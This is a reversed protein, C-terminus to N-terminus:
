EGEKKGSEGGDSNESSEESDKPPDKPSEGGVEELYVGIGINEAAEATLEVVTGIPQVGSVAVPKIVKYKKLEESM